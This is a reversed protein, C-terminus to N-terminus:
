RRKTRPRKGSDSKRSSKERDFQKWEPRERDPSKREARDRDSSKRAPREREYSKREPRERDFSKRESRERGFPKRESRGSDGAPKENAIESSVKVGDFDINNLGDLVKSTYQEDIEFFSFSKMIDIRGVPINRDRTAENVLGMLRQPNLGHNKGINVFLRKFDKSRSDSRDNRDGRRGKDRDRYETFKEDPANLDSANKYYELFRNFELSVFHKILEDRELWELKKNVEPLFEDILEHNVEVKEMKEILHFLQKKCIEKGTPVPLAEFKKNIKKEIEKIRYKEKLHVIAVSIGAKGARGTRGSRHTYVEMDDPLNYNIVHTLDNVDLGRAAVDTAVLMQMSKLRFRNMVHDRQAQSLDGHLADANYGDKILWEAVEKTEARTRCFIIGYIDPNMDAIRKLALYRDRAQVIYYAHKINEAGENKKGVTIEIPNSMYKKAITAVEKPMTASFLLTRRSAPVSELIENLDDRFGMNLMEDAEDLVVTKVASIDATRRHILDLIRGPTAVIIHTGMRLGRIQADINAGGYVPLIKIGKVYKSYAMLDKAIQVCLERTPSLILAQPFKDATNIQQLIPLGFAATKGTGTQALAVIDNSKELLAPIVQTQVPMPENFGLDNIGQLIDQNIGLEEFKNM